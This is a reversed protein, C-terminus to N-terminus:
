YRLSGVANSDVCLVETTSDILLFVMALYKPSRCEQKEFILERSCLRPNSVRYAM